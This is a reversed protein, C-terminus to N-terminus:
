GPVLDGCVHRYYGLLSQVTFVRAGILRFVFERWSPRCGACYTFCVHCCANILRSIGQFNGRNSIFSISPERSQGGHM